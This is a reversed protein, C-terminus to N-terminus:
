RCAASCMRNVFIMILFHELCFALGIILALLLRQGYLITAKKKKM